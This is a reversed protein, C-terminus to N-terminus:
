RGCLKEETSSSTIRGPTVTIQIDPLPTANDWSKLGPLKLLLLSGARWQRDTTLRAGMGSEILVVQLVKAGPIAYSSPLCATAPDLPLTAALTLTNGSIHDVVIRQGLIRFPSLPLGAKNYVNGLPYANWAYYIDPLTKEGTLDLTITSRGVRAKAPTFMGDAHALFLDNVSAAPALTV